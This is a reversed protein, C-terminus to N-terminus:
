TISCIKKAEISIDKFLFISEGDGQYAGSPRAAGVALSNHFNCFHVSCCLYDDSDMETQVDICLGGLEVRGDFWIKCVDIAGSHNVYFAINDVNLKKIKIKLLIESGYFYDNTVRMLQVDHRMGETFVIYNDRFNISAADAGEWDELEIDVNIWGAKPALNGSFIQELWSSTELIEEYFQNKITINHNKVTSLESAHSNDVSRVNGDRGCTFNPYFWPLLGDKIYRIIIMNCISQEPCFWRFGDPKEETQPPLIFRTQRCLALWLLLFDRGSTTNKVIVNNVIVMPFARTFDDDGAIETIQSQKSFQFAKLGTQSIERAVAFDAIKLGNEVINKLNNIYGRMMPYKIINCDIYFVIDDPDMEQMAHLLIFPKWASFGIKHLGPNQPLAYDEPYSQVLEYGGLRRVESPTYAKFSYGRAKTLAAITYASPKLFLGEDEPLGETYFTVVTIKPSPKNM